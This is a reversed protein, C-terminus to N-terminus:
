MRLEVLKKLPLTGESKICLNLEHCRTDEPSHTVLVWHEFIATFDADSKKWGMGNLGIAYYYITVSDLAVPYCCQHYKQQTSHEFQSSAEFASGRINSADVPTVDHTQTYLQFLGL